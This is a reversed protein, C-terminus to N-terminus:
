KKAFAKEVAHFLTVLDDVSGKPPNYDVSRLHFYRGAKQLSKRIQQITKVQGPRSTVITQLLMANDRERDGELESSLAHLILDERIESRIGMPYDPKLLGRLYALVM